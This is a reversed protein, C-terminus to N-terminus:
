KRAYLLLCPGNPHEKNDDHVIVRLGLIDLLELLSERTFWYSGAADSGRHWISHPSHQYFQEYLLLSRGGFQQVAPKAAFKKMLDPRRSLVTHDYYHTWVGFSAAVRAIDVLLQAPQSVHYLVGIALAFDYHDTTNALYPQFDGLIFEADFKLANKVIL